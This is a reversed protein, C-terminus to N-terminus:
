KKFINLRLRTEKRKNLKECYKYMDESYFLNFPNSKLILEFYDNLTRYIAFYNENLEDSFKDITLKKKISYADRHIFFGEPKITYYIKKLLEKMESDNLYISVGSMFVIDFKNKNFNFEKIDSNIFSIKKSNINSKAVNIFNLQKEVLSVNLGSDLFFNSWLGIGGGLDLLNSYNSFDLVKTLHKKEENFKLKSKEPDTELNMLSYNSLDKRSSFKFWFNSM